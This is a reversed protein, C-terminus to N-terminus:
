RAAKPCKCGGATGRRKHRALNGERIRIGHRELLRALDSVRAQDSDLVLLIAERRVEPLSALALGALCDHGGSGPGREALDALDALLADTENSPSTM